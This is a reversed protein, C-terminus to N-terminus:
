NRCNEVVSLIDTSMGEKKLEIVLCTIIQNNTCYKASQLLELLELENFVDKDIMEKTKKCIHALEKTENEQKRIIARLETNKSKIRDNYMNIQKEHQKIQKEYYEMDTIYKKRKEKLYEIDDELVARKLHNDNYYQKINLEIVRRLVDSGLEQCIERQKTNMRIQLPKKDFTM